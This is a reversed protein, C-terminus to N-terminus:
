FAWDIFSVYKQVGTNNKISVCQKTQCLPPLPPILSLFELTVSYDYVQM